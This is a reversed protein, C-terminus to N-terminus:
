QISPEYVAGNCVRVALSQKASSNWEESSEEKANIWRLNNEFCKNWRYAKKALPLISITILVLATTSTIVCYRIISPGKNPSM